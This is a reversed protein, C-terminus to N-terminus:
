PGVAALIGRLRRPTPPDSLYERVWDEHHRRDADTSSSLWSECGIELIHNLQAVLMGLQEPGRLRGPGGPTAAASTM